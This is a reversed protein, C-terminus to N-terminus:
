KLKKTQIPKVKGKADLQKPVKLERRWFTKFAEDKQVIVLALMLERYRELPEPDPKTPKGEAM